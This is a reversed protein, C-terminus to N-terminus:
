AGAIGPSLFGLVDGPSKAIIAKGAEIYPKVWDYYDAPELIILRTREFARSVLDMSVDPDIADTIIISEGDLKSALELAKVISTGGDATLRLLAEITISGSGLDHVDVDFAYAHVDGYRLILSIALATAVSVKEMGTGPMPEGMSGSRDIIVNFKRGSVRELGYHITALRLTRVPEPLMLDKVTFDSIRQSLGYASPYGIGKIHGESLREVFEDVLRAVNSLIRAMRRLEEPSTFLISSEELGRSHSPQLQANPYRARLQNLANDFEARTEVANLVQKAIAQVLLQITAKQTNDLANAPAMLLSKAGTRPKGGFQKMNELGMKALDAWEESKALERFNRLVLRLFWTGAYFSLSQSGTTYARIVRLERSRRYEEMVLHWVLEPQTRFRMVEISLDHIGYADATMFLRPWMSNGDRYRDRFYEIMSQLVDYPPPVVWKIYGFREISGKEESGGSPMILM